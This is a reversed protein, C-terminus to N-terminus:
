VTMPAYPLAVGRSFGIKGVESKVHGFLGGGPWVTMPAYLRAVGRSFGIKKQSCIQSLMTAEGRWFKIPAIQLTVGGKVQSDNLRSSTSLSTLHSFKIQASKPQGGGGMM